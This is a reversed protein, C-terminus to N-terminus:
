ARGRRQDQRAGADPRQDEDVVIADLPRIEVPLDEEGVLIDPAVLEVCSRTSEFTEATARADLEVVRPDNGFIGGLEHATAIEDDLARVVKRRLEEDRVSAADGLSRDNVGRRETRDTSDERDRRPARRAIAAEELVNWHLRRRVTGFGAHKPRQDTPDGSRLGIERERREIAARREALENLEVRMRPQSTM